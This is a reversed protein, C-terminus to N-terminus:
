LPVLARNYSSASLKVANAWEKVFDSLGDVSSVNCNCLGHIQRIKGDNLVEATFFPVNEKGKERIFMINTKGEAVDTIYSRVCHHLEIGEEALDVPDKPAIVVWKDNKDYEWKSWVPFRKEFLSKQKELESKILQNKTAKMVDIMMNHIALLEDCNKFKPKIRDAVNCYQVMRIFDGYVVIPSIKEFPYGNSLRVTIPGQSLIQDLYPLINMTTKVSWLISTLAISDGLSEKNYKRFFNYITNFSKDDIDRLDFTKFASRTNKLNDLVEFPSFKQGFYDKFITDVQHKNLKFMAYINKAKFDVGEGWDETVYKKWNSYPYWIYDKCFDKLGSKWLMEFEPYSILMYLIMAKYKDDFETYINKFYELKTDKFADESTIEIKDVEFSDPTLNGGFYVFKGYGDNRCYLHEKKSVYLRAKEIVLDKSRQFWRLVAWENNVRSIYCRSFCAPWLTCSPDPKVSPNTLQISVLEDVKKQKPGSKVETKKAKFFDAIDCFGWLIGYRNGGLFVQGFFDKLIKYNKTRSVVIRNGLVKELSEFKSLYIFKDYWNVDVESTYNKEKDCIFISGMSVNDEPVIWQFLSHDDIKRYNGKTPVMGETKITGSYDTKVVWQVLAVVDYKPVLQWEFVSVHTSKEPIYRSKFIESNDLIDQLYTDKPTDETRLETKYAKNAWGHPDVFIIGDIDSFVDPDGLEVKGNNANFIATYNKEQKKGNATYTKDKIVCNTRIEPVVLEKKVSEIDIM